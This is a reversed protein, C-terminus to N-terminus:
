GRSSRRSDMFVRVSGFEGIFNAVCSRGAFKADEGGSEHPRAASSRSKGYPMRGCNKSQTRVSEQGNSYPM